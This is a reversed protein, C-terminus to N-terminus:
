TKMRITRPKTYMHAHEHCVLDVIEIGDDTLGYPVSTVALRGCSHVCYPVDTMM